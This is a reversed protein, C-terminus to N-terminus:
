SNYYAIDLLSGFYKDGLENHTKSLCAGPTFTLEGFIIKGKINYFDVRVFPFDESLKQAYEVMMELNQPRSINAFDLSANCYQSLENWDVDYFMKRPMEDNRGEIVLIVKPEGNFCFFKYDIPVGNDLDNIYEECIIAKTKQSYHLQAAQQKLISQKQWKNLLDLVEKKNLKSKDKCIFNNGSGYTSKLVFKRPLKDWDIENGNRYVGYIPNLIEECEKSKVYERVLYKDACKTKLPDKWYLNLWMLKENFGTPNQLSLKKKMSIMYRLKCAIKPSFVCIINIIMIYIKISVKKTFM